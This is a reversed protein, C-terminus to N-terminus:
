SSEGRRRLLRAPVGAIVSRDEFSKTVVSGAAVVCGAGLTVGALITANAGIWVDRGLRVKKFTKPSGQILVAPDEFTHSSSLITVRPGLLCYDGIEVGGSGDVYADYNIAVNDGITIGSEPALCDVLLRSGDYIHCDSGVVIKQSYGASCWFLVGQGVTCGAGVRQPAAADLRPSALGARSVAVEDHCRKLFRYGSAALRVVANRFM